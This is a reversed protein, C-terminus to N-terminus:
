PLPHWLQALLVAAILLLAGLAAFIFSIELTEQRTILYTPLSSFVKHLEDASTAPYYEGGTLEAIEQLAAEDIGRSFGGDRGWFSSSGRSTGFGITYVRVGREVAQQAADRPDVGRNTNGDTLLVVIDPM